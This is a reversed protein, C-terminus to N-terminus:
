RTAASMSCLDPGRAQTEQFSVTAIVASPSAVCDPWLGRDHRDHLRIGLINAEGENHGLNGLM